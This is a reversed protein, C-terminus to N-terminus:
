QSAALKSEGKSVVVKAHRVVTGEEYQWGPLVVEKIKDKQGGSVVEIAEHLNENFDDKPFVKIEEVGESKLVERFENISIELGADGLHKQANVLMDYVSLLRVILKLSAIKTLTAREAEARKKLNDYDALARALQDKLENVEKNKKM